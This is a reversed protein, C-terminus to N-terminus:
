PTHLENLLDAGEGESLIGKRILTAILQALINRESRPFQQISESVQPSEFVPALEGGLSVIWTDLMARAAGEMTQFRIGMGIGPQSYTVVGDAEFELGDKKITVHVRSGNPLPSMSDVYCGGISIDTTRGNVRAQTPVETIQIPAVFPYRTAVRKDSPSNTM